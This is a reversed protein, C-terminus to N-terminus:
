DWDIINNRIGKAICIKEASKLVDSNELIKYEVISNLWYKKILVEPKIAINSIEASDQVSPYIIAEIQGEYAKSFINKAISAGFAYNTKHIAEKSFINAFLNQQAILHLQKEPSYAKMLEFFLNQAGLFQRNLGNTKFSPFVLLETKPDKLTWKSVTIIDGIKPRVENILTPLLFSGYFITEKKLNMRGYENVTEPDRPLLWKVESLRKNEGNPLSRNITLRHFDPIHKRFTVLYFNLRLITSEIEKLFFDPLESNSNDIRSWFSALTNLYSNNM